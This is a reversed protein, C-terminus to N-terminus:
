LGSDRVDQELIGVGSGSGEGTGQKEGTGTSTDSEEQKKEYFSLDHDSYYRGLM